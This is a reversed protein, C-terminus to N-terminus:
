RSPQTVTQSATLTKPLPGVAAAVRLEWHMKRKRKRKMAALAAM